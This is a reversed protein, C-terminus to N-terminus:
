KIHLTCFYKRKHTFSSFMLSLFQQVDNYGLYGEEQTYPGPKGAGKTPAGVGNNAANQLTFSHGYSGIGLNLKDKPAGKQIWYKIAFDQL